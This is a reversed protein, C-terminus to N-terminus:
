AATIEGASYAFVPGHFDEGHGRGHAAIAILASIGVFQHFHDVNQSGGAQLPRNIIVTFVWNSLKYSKACRLCSLHETSHGKRWAFVVRIVTLCFCPLM